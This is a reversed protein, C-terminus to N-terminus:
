QPGQATNGVNTTGSFSQSGYLATSGQGVNGQHTSTGDVDGEQHIDQGEGIVVLEKIEASEEFSDGQDIDMMKPSPPLDDSSANAFAQALQERATLNLFGEDSSPTGHHPDEDDGFDQLMRDDEGENSGNHSPSQPEGALNRAETPNGGLDEETPVGNDEEGDSEGENEENETVAEGTPEQGENEDGDGEESSVSSETGEEEEQEAEFNGLEINRADMAMRHEELMDAPMRPLGDANLGEANFGNVDFGADDWGDRNFGNRDRGDEDFGERDFGEDDFGTDGFRDHEQQGQRTFGNRNLGTDKHFGDQNYGDDDYQPHGYSPCGHYGEWDEGCIYCFERGCKCTIHNCAESLEIVYKCTCRQYKHEKVAEQFKVEADSIACTHPGEYDILTMCKICTLANCADCLASDAPDQKYSDPHIFHGCTKNGCYTRSRSQISYEREKVRYDFALEFPLYDEFDDILLVSFQADCCRPHYKSEDRIALDFVQELCVDCMWHEGCSTKRLPADEKEDDGCVVCAAM